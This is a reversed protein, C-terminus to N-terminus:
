SHREFRQMSGRFNTCFLEHLAHVSIAFTLLGECRVRSNSGKRLLPQAHKLTRLRAPNFIGCEEIVRRDLYRALPSKGNRLDLTAAPSLFAKKAVRYAPHSQGLAERLLVKGQGDRVKLSRPLGFAFEALKHDLFPVRGEVSNAMEMRDGLCNLIYSPLQTRFLFDQTASLPDDGALRRSSWGAALQELPDFDGISRICERSLLARIWRGLKLARLAPYPYAGFLEVVRDYEAYDKTRVTGSLLDVSGLFRRMQARLAPNRPERRVSEILAQHRFLDYGALLEDAGEGTLVSKVQQSALGSLLLKAAGHGNVVPMECHWLSRVFHSTLGAAPITVVHHDLGHQQATAAAGASEDFDPDDFAVTFAKMPRSSLRAAQTAVARSDLGGSLYVGPEQDGQLRLDVAEDFLRRFEEVSERVAVKSDAAEPREAFRPQWYRRPEVGAATVRLLCGPEVQRVGLFATEDPPLLGHLYSYIFSPNLERKIVPSSFIAKIESGFLLSRPSSAYYLPKVGFRDRGLWLTHQRRDYLAFAFEGRLHEVFAEGYEEYLHVIVETDCRTRLRHGRSELQRALAAFGYIEGNFTIQVSGDENTLPQTGGGVDVIALRTNVLLVNRAPSLYHGNSDPGRHRLAAMMRGADVTVQEREFAFEGAIGCM